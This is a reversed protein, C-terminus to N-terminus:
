LLTLERARLLAQTRSQVGLKGYINNVHKKITSVAVVLRDAIAQNSHGDAILRLVELERESLPEVLTSFQPSLVSLQPDRARPYDFANLLREIYGRLLSEPRLGGLEARLLAAMPAGEDVFIRVYGDPQALMLARQLAILAAPLDGQGQDVLAQLMLGEILYRMWGHAEVAPLLQALIIQAEGLFSEGPDHQSQALRLRTLALQQVYGVETDDVLAYAQAWRAAAALDGQQLWLRTRYAALLALYKPTTIRTQALWAEARDIRELAGDHHSHTQAIQALVIYGRVLLLRETAGHLLDVGQTAAHIAGALDNWQYDVEAIGVYGM